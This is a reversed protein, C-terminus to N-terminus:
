EHPFAGKADGCQKCRMLIHNETLTVAGTCQHDECGKDKHKCHAHVLKRYLSAEDPKVPYPMRCMTAKIRGGETSVIEDSM